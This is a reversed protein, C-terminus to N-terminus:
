LRGTWTGAHLLCVPMDVIQFLFLPNAIKERVDSSIAHASMAVKGTESIFTKKKPFVHRRQLDHKIIKNTVIQRLSLLTIM